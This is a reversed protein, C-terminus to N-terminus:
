GYDATYDAAWQKGVWFLVEFGFSGRRSPVRGGEGLVGISQGVKSVM